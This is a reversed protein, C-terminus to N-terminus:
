ECNKYGRGRPCCFSAKISLDPPNGSYDCLTGYRDSQRYTQLEEDDNCHVGCRFINALATMSSSRSIYTVSETWRCQDLDANSACCLGRRTSPVCNDTGEENRATDTSLLFKNPPCEDHPTQGAMVRIGIDCYEDGPNPIGGSMIPNSWSCDQPLHETPCCIQHWFGTDCTDIEDGFQLTRPNHAREVATFGAKCRQQSSDTLETEDTCGSTVSSPESTNAKRPPNLNM